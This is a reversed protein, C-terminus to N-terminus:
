YHLLKHRGRKTMICKAIHMFYNLTFSTDDQLIVNLPFLIKLKLPINHLFHLHINILNKKFNKFKLKGTM